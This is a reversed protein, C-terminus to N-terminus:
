ADDPEEGIPLNRRPAATLDVDPAYERVKEEWVRVAHRRDLAHKAAREETQMSPGHKWKCHYCVAQPQFDMQTVLTVGEMSM